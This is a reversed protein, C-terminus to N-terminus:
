IKPAKHEPLIFSKVNERIGKLHKPINGAAGKGGIRGGLRQRAATLV